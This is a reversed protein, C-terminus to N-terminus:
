ASRNRSTGELLTKWAIFYMVYYGYETEIIGTDGVSRSSDFCWDEFNKVM